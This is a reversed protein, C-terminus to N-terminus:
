FVAPSFTPWGAQFALSIHPCVPREGIKQSTPLGTSRFFSPYTGDTRRDGRRTETGVNGVNRDGRKLILKRHRLFGVDRFGRSTPCGAGPLGRSGVATM